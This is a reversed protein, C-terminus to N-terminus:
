KHGAAKRKRARPSTIQNVLQSTEDGDAGEGSAAVLKDKLNSLIEDVKDMINNEDSNLNVSMLLDGKVLKSKDQEYEQVAYALRRQLDLLRKQDGVREKKLSSITQKVRAREESYESEQDEVYEQVKALCAEYSKIAAECEDCSKGVVEALESFKGQEMLGKVVGTDFLKEEKCNSLATRLEQLRKSRDKAARLKERSPKDAEASAQEEIKLKAILEEQKAITSGDTVRSKECKTILGKKRTLEEALNAKEKQLKELAQRTVADKKQMELLSERLQIFMLRQDSDVMSDAQSSRMKGKKKSSAQGLGCQKLAKDYLSEKKPKSESKDKNSITKKGEKKEKVVKGVKKVEHKLNKRKIDEEELPPEKSRDELKELHSSATLVVEQNPLTAVEQTQPEEEPIAEVERGM